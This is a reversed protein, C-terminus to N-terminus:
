IFKDCIVFRINAEPKLVFDYILLSNAITTYFKELYLSLTMPRVLRTLFDEFAKKGAV